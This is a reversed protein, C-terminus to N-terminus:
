GFTAIYSARSAPTNPLGSLALWARVRPAEMPVLVLTVRRRLAPDRSILRRLARNTALALRWDAEAGGCLDQYDGLTPYDSLPVRVAEGGTALAPALARLAQEARSKANQWTM